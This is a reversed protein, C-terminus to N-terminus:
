AAGRARLEARVECWGACARAHLLVAQRDAGLLGVRRRETKKAACENQMRRAPSLGRPQGRKRADEAAADLLRAGADTLHYIAGIRGPKPTRAWDAGLDGYYAELAAVCLASRRELAKLTASVQAYLEMAVSDPVYGSPQRVEATPHATLDHEPYVIAGEHLSPWAPPARRLRQAQLEYGCAQQSYRLEGVHGFLEAHALMPGITSREFATQGLGFFWTLRAEDHATIRM